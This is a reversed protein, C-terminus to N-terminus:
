AASSPSAVHWVNRRYSLLSGERSLDSFRFDIQALGRSKPDVSESFVDDAPTWFGRSRVEQETALLLERRSFSRTGFQEKAVQLMLARLPNTDITM